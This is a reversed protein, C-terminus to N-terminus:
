VIRFYGALTCRRERSWTRANTLGDGTPSAITFSTFGEGGYGLGAYNPANKVFISCNMVCAMRHLADLNRSYMSATHRNGHETELAMDIGEHVDKVRVVGIVPMLLEVQVFPHDMPVECIVLRPDGKFPVDIAKLFESANKGVWKRNVHKRDATLIERELRTIQHNRILV